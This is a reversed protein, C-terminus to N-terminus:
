ADGNEETVAVFVDELSGWRARLERLMWGNQAATRFVQARVDSGPDGAITLRHWESGTTGCVERVGPIGRLREVVAEFPGQIETEVQPSRGLLGMLNEPTDSAAIRGRRMILVRDCVKEVESLIHSSLVITHRGALGQIVERIQRRQNPDMGLTPEDLILVEPEALLSDALALRQRYGRSLHDVIRRRSDALGCCELVWTVRRRRQRGRLGKLSARFSLYECVRMEPYLPINEPLYGVRRRIELSDRYADLGDVTVTGGTPPLFCSMIRM